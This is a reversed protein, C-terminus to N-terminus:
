DYHGDLKTKSILKLWVIPFMGITSLRIKETEPKEFANTLLGARALQQFDLDSLALDNDRGLKDRLLLLQGLYPTLIVMNETTYGQQRLYQIIKVTMDAEFVNHKSAKQSNDHDHDDKIRPETSEEHNHNVWVVRANIGRVLSRHSTKEADLLDPYTMERVLQSIEPSMRHQKQLVEYHHGQLILREFMSRNLDYGEGQEVGLHYSNIKPRLQKHDGILILQRTSPSLSTLTHAELIEGAEEFLVCDAEAANILDYYKAAATTTCGIVRKTRIFSSRPEDYMTEIEHEVKNFREIKDCLNEIKEADIAKCWRTVAQQRAELCMNWIFHCEAPIFPKLKGAGQGVCWRELLSTEGLPKRGRGATEFGDEPRPVQFAQRFIEAHPEDSFDLFDLIEKYTVKKMNEASNLEPKLELVESKLTNILSYSLGPRHSSARYQDEFSLSATVETSKYGLRVMTKKDVGVDILDELFQDLAHNTYSLVVLRSEPSELLIKAALAGIFSKGTGPPGQILPLPSELAYILASLQAQDLELNAKNGITLAHHPTSASRLQNIWTRVEPRPTFADAEQDNESSLRLIDERLPLDKIKQLQKLIPEYSFMATDVMVFSLLRPSAKACTLVDRLSQREVIEFGVQPVDRSLREIDRILHGFGLLKKDVCFAGFSNHRLFNPNQSLFKKKELSTKKKYLTEIGFYVEFMIRAQKLRRQNGTDIDVLTLGSLRRVSRRSKKNGLAIAVDERIEALMDERLLRFQNGIHGNARRQSELESIQSALHLFPPVTSAFEDPTPYVSIDRFDVFDNNHRGGPGNATKSIDSDLGSDITDLINQIRYGHVRVTQDPHKTLSRKQLAIRVTLAASSLESGPHKLIELCLLAFGITNSENNLFGNEEYLERFANWMTPPEVITSILRQILQGGLLAISSTEIIYSLFPAVHNCLFQANPQM